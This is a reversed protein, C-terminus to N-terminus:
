LFRVDIVDSTLPAEAFTILNGTVTYAVGPIQVVGNFMVLAAASTSDRDLTFVLTSDDGTFLQNTVGAAVSDWEAGDYVELRGADTNFRITGIAAPVPQQATNGTPLVLGTTTNIIATGTGTPTLTINGDVLATSITTNSITLNGLAGVINAGDIWILNGTGDTSLIFDEAGGTISVNANSGLDLIGTDASIATGSLVINAINASGIITASGTIDLTTGEVTGTAVVNNGSVNGTASVDAADVTGTVSVNNGSINGAAAVSGTTNINGADINGATAINGSININAINATGVLTLTTGDFQLNSDTVALKTTSAYFIGNATASTIRVNDANAVGVVNFDDQPASTKVGVRNNQVDIYVLNGQFALNAGRQLNDQLINGSIRNIAM